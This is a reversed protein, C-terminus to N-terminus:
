VSHSGSMLGALDEPNLFSPPPKPGWSFLAYAEEWVRPHWLADEVVCDMDSYYETFNGAPDKLYWFFNSGIHHRGLGWIHREPNESLMHTAGRGIEDIDDVQWSTHHVFNVPAASVLINHHDTSCRMFAAENRIEDSVKLGIGETFFRQSVAQDISGIVVHGLKRPRVPGVREIGEARRNLRAPSGVTNYGPAPIDPQIIRDSVEVKVRVGTVPETAEIANTSSYSSVEIRELQKAIRGLDDEDDAGIAVSVLRRRDSHVLRLQNGGDRTSFWGDGSPTLGFDEYYDTATAVDPVGLTVSQIRHLGM